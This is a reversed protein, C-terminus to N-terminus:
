ATARGSIMGNGFATLGNREQQYRFNSCSKVTPNNRIFDGSACGLARNCLM